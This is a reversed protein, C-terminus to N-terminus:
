WHFTLPIGTPVFLGTKLLLGTLPSKTFHISVELEVQRLPPFGTVEFTMGMTEAEGIGTLIEIEADALGTHWPLETINVALAM